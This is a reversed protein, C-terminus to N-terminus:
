SENASDGTPKSDRVQKLLKRASEVASVADKPASPGSMLIASMIAVLDVEHMRRIKPPKTRGERDHHHGM